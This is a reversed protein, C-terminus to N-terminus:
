NTRKTASSRVELWDIDVWGKKKSLSKNDRFQFNHDSVILVMVKTSKVENQTQETGLVIALWTDDMLVHHV